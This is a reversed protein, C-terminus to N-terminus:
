DRSVAINFSQDAAAPAPTVDAQSTTTSAGNAAQGNDKLTQRVASATNSEQGQNDQSGEDFNLVSFLNFTTTPPPENPHGQIRPQRGLAERGQSSGGSSLPDRRPLNRRRNWPMEPCDVKLHKM